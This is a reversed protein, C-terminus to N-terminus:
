EKMKELFTRAKARANGDIRVVVLGEDPQGYVVITGDPFDRIIPLVALDEEGFVEILTSKGPLLIRAEELANLLADSISAAPCEVKVTRDAINAFEKVLASDLERRKTRYDVVALRLPIAHRKMTLTVVDGVAAIAGANRIEDDLQEEKILKGWPEKLESRPEDPLRYM